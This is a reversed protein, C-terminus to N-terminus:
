LLIQLTFSLVSMIFHFFFYYTYKGTKFQTLREDPINSYGLKKLQERIEEETFDFDDMMSRTFDPLLYIYLFIM